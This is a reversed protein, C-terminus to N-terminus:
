PSARTLSRGYFRLMNHETSKCNCDPLDLQGTFTRACALILWEAGPFPCPFVLPSTAKKRRFRGAIVDACARRAAASIGVRPYGAINGPSVPRMRRGVAACGLSRMKPMLPGPKWPLVRWGQEYSRQQQVGIGAKPCERRGSPQLRILRRARGRPPPAREAVAGLTVIRSVEM